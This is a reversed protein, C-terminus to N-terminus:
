KNIIKLLVLFPTLLFYIMYGAVIWGLITLLLDTITESFNDHKFCNIPNLQKKQEKDESTLTFFVCLYGFCLLCLPILIIISMM